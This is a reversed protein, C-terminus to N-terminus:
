RRTLTRAVTYAVSVESGLPVGIAGRLEVGRRVGSRAGSWPTIAVRGGVQGALLGVSVYPGARVVDGGFWVGGTTMFAAGWTQCLSPAYLPAAALGVFFWAPRAGVEGMAFAYPSPNITRHIGYDWEICEYASLAGGLGVQAVTVAPPVERSPLAPLGVRELVNRTDPALVWAWGDEDHRAVILCRDRVTLVRRAVVDLPVDGDVQLARVTVGPVAARVDRAGEGVVGIILEADGERRVVAVIQALDLDLGAVPIDPCGVPVDYAAAADTGLHIPPL